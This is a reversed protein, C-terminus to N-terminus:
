SGFLVVSNSGNTEFRLVENNTQLFSFGLIANGGFTPYDRFITLCFQVNSYMLSCIFEFYSKLQCYMKYKYAQGSYKQLPWPLLNGSNLYILFQDSVSCLLLELSVTFLNILWSKKSEFWWIELFNWFINRSDINIHVMNVGFKCKLRNRKPM